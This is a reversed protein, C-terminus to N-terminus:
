SKKVEVTVKGPGINEPALPMFVEVALKDLTKKDQGCKEDCLAFSYWLIKKPSDYKVIAVNAWKLGPMTLRLVAYERGCACCHPPMEAWAAPPAVFKMTYGPPLNKRIRAEANAVSEEATPM